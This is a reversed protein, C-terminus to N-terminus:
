NRGVAIRPVLFCGSLVIGHSPRQRRDRVGGPDPGARRAHPIEVVSTDTTAEHDGLIDRVDARDAVAQARGRVATRIPRPEAPQGSRTHQLLAPGGRACRDPSALCIQELHRGREFGQGSGADSPAPARRAVHATNDLYHIGQAGQPRAPEPSKLSTCANSRRESGTSPRAWCSEDVPSSNGGNAFPIRSPPSSERVFNGCRRCVIPPQRSGGQERVM